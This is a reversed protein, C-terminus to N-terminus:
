VCARVCLAVCRAGAGSEDDDDDRPVVPKNSSVKNGRLTDVPLPPPAAKVDINLGEEALLLTM